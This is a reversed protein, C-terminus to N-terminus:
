NLCFRVDLETGDTPFGVPSGVSEGRVCQGPHVSPPIQTRKERRVRTRGLRRKLGPLKQLRLAALPHLPEFSRSLRHLNSGSPDVLRLVAAIEGASQGRGPGRRPGGRSPRRRAASGGGRATPGLLALGSYSLPGAFTTVAPSPTPSPPQPDTFPAPSVRRSGSYTPFLQTSPSFVQTGKEM